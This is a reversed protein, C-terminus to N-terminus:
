KRVYLTKCRQHLRLLVFTQNIAQCVIEIDNGADDSRMAAGDVLEDTIGYHCDPARRSVIGLVRTVGAVSDSLDVPM